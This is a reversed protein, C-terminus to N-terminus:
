HATGSTPVSAKAATLRRAAEVATLGAAVVEVSTTVPMGAETLGSMTMVILVIVVVFAKKSPKDTRDKADTEPVV